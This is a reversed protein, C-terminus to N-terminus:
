DNILKRMFINRLNQFDKFLVFSFITGASLINKGNTGYFDIKQPPCSHGERLRLLRGSDDPLDFIWM